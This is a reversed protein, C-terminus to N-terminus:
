SFVGRYLAFERKSFRRRNVKLLWNHVIGEYTYLIIANSSKTYVYFEHQICRTEHDRFSYVAHEVDPSFNLKM